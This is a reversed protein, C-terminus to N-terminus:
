FPHASPNQPLQKCKQEGMETLFIHTIHVTNSGTFNLHCYLISATITRTNRQTCIYSRFHLLRPFSSPPRLFACKQRLNRKWPSLFIFVYIQTITLKDYMQNTVSLVIFRHCAFCLSIIQSTTWLVVYRLCNCPPLSIEPVSEFSWQRM